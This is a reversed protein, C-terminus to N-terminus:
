QEKPPLYGRRRAETVWRSAASITVHNNESLAKIPHREGEAVLAEYKKAIMRIFADRHARGPGAIERLPAAASRFTEWREEPTGEPGFIRMAARAYAVYSEAQPAFERLVKPKIQATDPLIRLEQLLGEGRVDGPAFRLVFKWGRHTVVATPPGDPHEDELGLPYVRVQPEVSM